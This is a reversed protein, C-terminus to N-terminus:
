SVRRLAELAALGRGPFDGPAPDGFALRTRPEGRVAWRVREFEAFPRRTPLGALEAALQRREEALAELAERRGAEFGAAFGRHQAAAEAAFRARQEAERADSWSLLARVDAQQAAVSDNITLSM